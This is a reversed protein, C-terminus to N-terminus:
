GFLKNYIEDSLKEQIGKRYHGDTEDPHLNTEDGKYNMNILWDHFNPEFKITNPLNINYEKKSLKQKGYSLEEDDLIFLNYVQIGRQHLSEFYPSVLGNFLKYNSDYSYDLTYDMIFNHKEIFKSFRTDNTMLSNTEESFFDNTSKILKDSDIYCGRHFFSWNVFIIDGKVFQFDNELINSFIIHNSNGAIGKFKYNKNLKKALHYGFSESKGAEAFSDGFHWFNNKM